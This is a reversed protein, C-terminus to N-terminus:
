GGPNEGANLRPLVDSEGEFVQAPKWDLETDSLPEQEEGIFREMGWAWLRQVHTKAGDGAGAPLGGLVSGGTNCGRGEPVRISIQRTGIRSEKLDARFLCENM